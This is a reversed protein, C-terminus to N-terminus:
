KGKSDPFPVAHERALVRDMRMDYFLDALDPYMRELELSRRMDKVWLRAYQHAIEMGRRTLIGEGDSLPQAKKLDIVFPRTM